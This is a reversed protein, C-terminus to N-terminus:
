CVGADGTGADMSGAGNQWLPGLTHALRPVATLLTLCFHVHALVAITAVAGRAEFTELAVRAEARLIQCALVALSNEWLEDTDRRCCVQLLM